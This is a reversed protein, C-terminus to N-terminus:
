AISKIQKSILLYKFLITFQLILELKSFLLYLIDILTITNFWFNILCFSFDVYLMYETIFQNM